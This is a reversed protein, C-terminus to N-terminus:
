SLLAVPYEGFTRSVHNFGVLHQDLATFVPKKHTLNLIFGAQADKGVALSRTRKLDLVKRLLDKPNVKNRSEVCKNQMEVRLSESKRLDSKLEENEKRLAEIEKRLNCMMSKQDLQAADLASPKINEVKKVRLGRPNTNNIGDGPPCWAKASGAKGLACKGLWELRWLIRIQIDHRHMDRSICIDLEDGFKRLQTVTMGMVQEEVTIGNAKFSSWMMKRSKPTKLLVSEQIGPSIDM